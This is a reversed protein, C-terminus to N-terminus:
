RASEPLGRPARLWAREAPDLLVAWAAAGFAAVAVVIYLVKAGLELPLLTGGLAILSVVIVASQAGSFRSTGVESRARALLFLVAADVACRLTWAIAAGVIGQAPVLLWLAVLYLPLETLHAKATLDARGRAQLLAFPLYALCNLMVGLCLWQAVRAGQRAYEDGLWLDMWEPAFLAATLALPLVVIVIAKLGARYLAALRAPEAAAFAPVLVGTLAAPVIWLRTVVEYPATYYAVASVAVLAGIVFRDIYVMLPGVVNSVTLWAGYGLMERAETARPLGLRSWAPYLRACVLWHAACAALRLAVLAGALAVLSPTVFTAALPAAFMLIGLPIRIANM